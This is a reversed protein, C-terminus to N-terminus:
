SSIASSEWILDQFLLFRDAKLLQRPMSEKLTPLFGQPAASGSSAPLPFNGTGMTAKNFYQAQGGWQLGFDQTNLLSTQIVLVEIFVQRLPIDINEILDKLKVLVDQQGTCLLSNTVEIWQLSNVADVLATPPNSGKSLSVAVQRLATQIDNGPHFQLKYVLFSTNDISEISPAANEKGPIDFKVLLQQVKEVSEPDGSVM